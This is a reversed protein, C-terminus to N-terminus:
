EGSIGRINLARGAGFDVEESSALITMPLKANAHTEGGGGVSVKSEVM